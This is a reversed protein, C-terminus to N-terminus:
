RTTVPEDPPTNEDIDRALAALASRRQSVSERFYRAVESAAIRRHVAGPEATIKGRDILRVVTMRSVGLLAAAEQTSLTTDAAFIVADGHSELVNLLEGFAAHAHTPVDVANRLADEIAARLTQATHEALAGAM